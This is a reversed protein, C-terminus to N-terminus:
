CELVYNSYNWTWSHNSASENRGASSSMVASSEIKTKKLGNDIIGSRTQIADSKENIANRLENEM